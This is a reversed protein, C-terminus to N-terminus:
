SFVLLLFDRSVTGKFYAPYGVIHPRLSLAQLGHHPQHGVNVPILSNAPLYEKMHSVVEKLSIALYWATPLTISRWM